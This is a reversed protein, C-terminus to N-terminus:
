LRNMVIPQDIWDDILARSISMKSPLVPLHDRDFWGAAVIENNDVRIEGSNYDAVFGCMLSNPFPWPESAFYRLNKVTIGVEEMIERHVTQELTEGPEVFGAIVSHMGPLFHPSRALLIQNDKEVRVIVAPSLRPYTLQNCSPCLKSREIRLQHNKTGCRGCFQTTRDFDIIQVAYAAIALDADPVRGFLERVSCSIWNEPLPIGPAIEAAYCPTDHRHGLYQVSKVSFGLVHPFYPSIIFPGNDRTICISKDAVMVWCATNPITEPEPFLRTLNNVSFTALPAMNNCWILLNGGLLLQWLIKSIAPM